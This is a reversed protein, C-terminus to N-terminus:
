SRGTKITASDLVKVAAFEGFVFDAGVHIEDGEHKNGADATKRGDSEYFTSFLCTYGRGDM